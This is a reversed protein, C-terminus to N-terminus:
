LKSLVTSDCVPPLSPAEQFLRSVLCPLYVPFANLILVEQKYLFVFCFLVNDRSQRMQTCICVTIYIKMKISLCRSLSHTNKYNGSIIKLRYLLM